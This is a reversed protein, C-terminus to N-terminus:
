VLRDLAAAVESRAFPRVVGTRAGGRRARRLLEAQELSACVIVAVEPRAGHIRALVDDTQGSILGVDVFVVEPDFRVLAAVGEQVTGAEAVVEHGLSAVLTALLRRTVCADDVVLVRALAIGARQLPAPIRRDQRHNGLV